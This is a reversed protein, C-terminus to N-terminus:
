AAKRVHIKGVQRSGICILASRLRAAFQRAAPLFRAGVLIRNEFEEFHIVLSCPFGSAIRAVEGSWRGNAPPLLNFIAIGDPVLKRRILPPLIEWSVQPKTVDGSEPISLDEVLLDFPRRQQRLWAVADGHNWCLGGAWSRCHEHFLDYGTRDLDVAHVPATVSLARLPAMMGGGAFGLLGLHGSPKLVRISASLVDFVSHTPGPRTRLESVVVGHQSLRFGNPTRRSLLQSRSFSM